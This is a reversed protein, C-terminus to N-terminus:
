DAGHGDGVGLGLVRWALRVFLYGALAAMAGMAVGGVVLYLGNTFYQAMSGQFGYVKIVAPLGDVLWRGLKFAMTYIPVATFPNTIWCAALATPLNVRLWIACVASALMQVSITPTFAIFLGLALGGSLSRESIHWIERDFLRDGLVRHVYEGRLRERNRLFITLKEKIRAAMKLPIVPTDECNIGSVVERAHRSM